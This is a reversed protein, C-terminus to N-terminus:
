EGAADPPRGGQELSEAKAIASVAKQLDLTFRMMRMPWDAQADRSIDRVLNGSELEAIFWKCTALLDPLPDPTTEGHVIARQIIMQTELVYELDLREADTPDPLYSTERVKREALVFREASKLATLQPSKM